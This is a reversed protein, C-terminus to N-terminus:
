YHESTIYEILEEIEERLGTIELKIPGLPSERDSDVLSIKGMYAAQKHFLVILEREGLYRYLHARVAPEIQQSRIADRLPELCQINNCKVRMVRYEQSITEVDYEMIKIITSIAKKVKEPDETPRIEAEVVIEM